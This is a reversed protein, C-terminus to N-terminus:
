DLQLPNIDYKDELKQCLKLWPKTPIQTGKVTGKPRRNNVIRRIDEEAKDPNIKNYFKILINVQEEFTDSEIVEPEEIGLLKM